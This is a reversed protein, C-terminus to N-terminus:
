DFRMLNLQSEHNQAVSLIWDARCHYFVWRTAGCACRRNFEKVQQETASRINWNTTPNWSCHLLLDSCLPMTLENRKYGLGFRRFFFVPNDSTLYKSSGSCRMIRWHMNYILEVLVKMPWPTHLEDILEQPPEKLFGEEAENLAAITNAVEAESLEGKKGSEITERRTQEFAAPMVEPIKGVAYNRAAPVRRSMTAVYYAMRVRDEANMAEGRRIKEIVASGPKEAILNLNKEDVDSYFEPEQAVVRIPLAKAQQTEKDFRWIHPERLLPDDIQFGRLYRQPVYHLGM